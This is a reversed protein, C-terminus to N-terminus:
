SPLRGVSCRLDGDLSDLFRRIQTQRELRDHACKRNKDLVVIHARTLLRTRDVASRKKCCVVALASCISSISFLIWDSLLISVDGASSWSMSSFARLDARPLYTSGKSSDCVDKSRNIKRLVNFPITELSLGSDSRPPSTWNRFM